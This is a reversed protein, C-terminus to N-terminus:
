YDIDIKKLDVRGARVMTNFIEEYFIFEGTNLASQLRRKIRKQEKAKVIAKNEAAEQTSLFDGIMYGPPSLYKDMIQSMVDDDDDMDEHAKRDALDAWRPGTPKAGYGAEKFFDNYKGEQAKTRTNFINIQRKTPHWDPNPVFDDLAWQKETVLNSSLDFNYSKDEMKLRYYTRLFDARQLATYNSPYVPHDSNTVEKCSEDNPNLPEFEEQSDVIFDDNELDSSFDNAQIEPSTNRNLPKSLDFDKKPLSSADSYQTPLLNFQSSTLEQPSDKRLPSKNQRLEKNDGDHQTPDDIKIPSSMIGSDRSDRVRKKKPPCMLTKSNLQISPEVPERLESSDTKKRKRSQLSDSGVTPLMVALKQKMEHLANELVVIQLKLKENESRLVQNKAKFARLKGNFEIIVDNVDPKSPSGSLLQALRLIRALESQISSVSAEIQNAHGM